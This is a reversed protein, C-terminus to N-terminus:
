LYEPTDLGALPKHITDFGFSLADERDEPKFSEMAKVQKNLNDNVVLNRGKQLNRHYNQLM